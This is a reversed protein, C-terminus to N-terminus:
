FFWVWSVFILETTVANRLIQKMSNIANNKSFKMTKLNEASSKYNGASTKCNRASCLWPKAM